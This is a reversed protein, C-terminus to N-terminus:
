ESRKLLRCLQWEHRDKALGQERTQWQMNEPRDEGGACLPLIHDVVYGPCPGRVQHSLPCPHDRMFVDRAARSRPATDAAQAVLCVAAVAAALSLRLAQM